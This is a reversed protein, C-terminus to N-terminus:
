SGALPPCHAGSHLSDVIVAIALYSVVCEGVAVLLWGRIQWSSCCLKGKCGRRWGAQWGVQKSREMGRHYMCYCWCRSSRTGGCTAHREQGDSPIRSRSRDHLGQCVVGSKCEWRDSHMHVCTDCLSLRSYYSLEFLTSEMPSNPSVNPFPIISPPNGSPLAGCRIATRQVM